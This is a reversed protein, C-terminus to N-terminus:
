EMLLVPKVCRGSIQDEIADNIERFPYATIMKEFPFNGARHHKLLEPIFQSPVADGEIVGVVRKGTSMLTNIPISLAPAKDSAIGVSALVGRKALAKFADEMVAPRGTTDLAYDVGEPVISKIRKRLPEAGPDHVDSAGLELALARRQPLPDSVVITACGAIKAAMVASLGVAGGGTVLLAAGANPRFVNLVTGAGTQIGCGFPGLLPLPASEPVPVLNREYAVAYSAFSSQGFFHSAIPGRDDRLASDGNRRAGAYNLAGAEDCYGPYGEGCSRCAGCSAFSLVVADGKRVTTVATGVEEVVGAGEHGLVAPLSPPLETDRIVLDTHCIGVGKIKVLVEDPAPGSLRLTEISFPKGPQRAVAATVSRETVPRETM